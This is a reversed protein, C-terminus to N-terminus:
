SVLCFVLSFVILCIIFMEIHMCVSFFIIQSNLKILGFHNTISVTIRDSLHCSRQCHFDIKEDVSGIIERKTTKNESM